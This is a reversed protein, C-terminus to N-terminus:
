IGAGSAIVERYYEEYRSVINDASFATRAKEQAARGLAARHAPNRILSEVARALDAPEGSPVLLGNVNHDVVEPIGGVSTTVSPSAFAM